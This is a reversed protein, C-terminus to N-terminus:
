SSYKNELYAIIKVDDGAITIDQDSDILTPVENQGTLRSLHTRMKKDEAVNRIIYDIRLNSLTKRVKQSYPCEEFQYLDLM